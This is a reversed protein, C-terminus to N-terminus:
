VFPLHRVWIWWLLWFGCLLQSWLSLSGISNHIIIRIRLVWEFALFCVSDLLDHVVSGVTFHEQLWIFLLVYLFANELNWISSESSIFEIFLHVSYDLSLKASFAKRFPPCPVWIGKGTHIGFTSLLISSKKTLCIWLNLCHALELVLFQVCHRFFLHLLLWRILDNRISM